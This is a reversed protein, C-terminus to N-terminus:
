EEGFMEDVNIKRKMQKVSNNIVDLQKKFVDLMEDEVEIAGSLFMETFYNTLDAIMETLDLSETRLLFKSEDNRIIYLNFLNAESSFTFNVQDYGLPNANFNKARIFILSYNMQLYNLFLQDKGDIFNLEEGDWQFNGGLIYWFLFTSFDSGFIAPITDERLTYYAKPWQNSNVQNQITTILMQKNIDEKMINRFVKYYSRVEELSLNTEM